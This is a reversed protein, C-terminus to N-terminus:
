HNKISQEKCAEWLTSRLSSSPSTCSVPLSSPPTFPPSSGSPSPCSVGEAIASVRSARTVGFLTPSACPATVSIVHHWRCRTRLSASTFIRSVVSASLLGFSRRPFHPLWFCRLLVAFCPSVVSILALRSGSHLNLVALHTSVGLVTAVCVKRHADSPRCDRAVCRHLGSVVGVVLVGGCPARVLFDGRTECYM